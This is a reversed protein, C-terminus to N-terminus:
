KQKWVISKAVSEIAEQIGWLEVPGANGRQVFVKTKGAVSFTVTTIGHHTSGDTYTKEAMASFQSAMFLHCLRGYTFIDIKGTFNGIREPFPRWLEGGLQLASAVHLEAHGFRDEYPSGRQRRNLIVKYENSLVGNSSREIAVSDCPLGAWDAILSGIYVPSYLFRFEAPVDAVREGIGQARAQPVVANAAAFSCVICSVLLGLKVHRM